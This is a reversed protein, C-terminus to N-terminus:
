GKTRAIAFPYIGRVGADALLDAIVTMTWRSDSVDDVLLVPGALDTETVLFADSVNGFQQASNNMLKQPRTAHSKRVVDHFPLDLRAPTRQAFDPVLTRTQDATPVPVIAGDFDPLWERILEAAADVIEDPVLTHDRKARLLARGYGADSLYGLARGQELQHDRAIMGSRPLTWKKRPEIIAPRQRIFNIAEIITQSSAATIRTKRCNDCRGCDTAEPDDLQERIFHMRCGTTEAYDRMAQQEELRAVRVRDIREADFAWPALTRRYRFGDAEVAGEVELVKLLGTLRGKSLNVQSELASLHTWDQTGALLDVVARAEDAVPLSSRMFWDWIESDETGVLLVGDAHEVSRGARGVQQYYAVPSDPSQYHVVFSVDPKDFGMGLASTACVVKVENSRLAREVELRTEADDDGSYAIASINRSRLWDSVRTADGVTLAYVIGTGERTPIWEALWALREAATDLHAAALALSERDLPGRSIQVDDGLQAVIDAIVRDNATATTCLVPAGAPLLSLVRTIRRYDPRFDHGWDSICHAEDVVFLGTRSTLPVLLRDRFDANNLREPSILLVDIHDALLQSEISEWEDRNSSNLTAARLGMRVAMAQQDRMLALLPSIIVTPGGGEARLLKTAVFYVISKGWGTRQVVLLRARDVVLAQIAELQGDRFEAEAGFADHLADRAGAAFVDPQTTTM